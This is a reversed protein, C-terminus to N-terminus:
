GRASWGGDSVLTQGTVWGGADSVLWGVLEATDEPRGWRGLPMRSAVVARSAEDAYGTDVPGPDVCNVTIGSPALENALTATVQQLAGKTVVYPLEGPMAGHHQGSTFMVVRGGHARGRVAAFRQVLLLTARVNVAWCLDLEAATSGALPVGSSRAHAAVLVDLGGLRRVAEDVLAAPADPGVLDDQRYHIAGATSPLDRRLVQALEDPTLADAGWPQVADHPSWGTALVDAGDAALRRTVAFAIGVRRSVGTVLAKRGSLTQV